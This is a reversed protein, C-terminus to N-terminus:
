TATATGALALLLMGSVYGVVAPWGGAQWFLGGAAGAVSGGMYYFFLYLATAQGKARLARQGSWASAVSHAAFLAFTVVAIGAIVIPLPRLLTLGIGILMVILMAMLMRQRGARHALAGIWASGLVGFLYVVFILGVQAHTLSYPPALLYYTVYNYTTVFSGMVLFGAAYLPILRVDRLHDRYITLLAAARLPRPVFHRSPPLTRAFITAAVLGLVGMAGLAVRWSFADTLTAALLRGTMGGFGNGGISLGVALGISDPHVEENLYAMSVAPLGAFGIGALARLTLFVEWKTAFAAAVTLVSAGFLSVAMMHKRGRTESLAGAMIMAPALLGTTLSLSLSSQAASVHFDRAFVPMLPQVCYLLALTAFGASFLALNTRRFEATGHRIL